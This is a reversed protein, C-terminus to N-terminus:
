YCAHTICGCWSDSCDPDAPWARCCVKRNEPGGCGTCNELGPEGYRVRCHEDVPECASEGPNGGPPDRQCSGGVLFYYNEVDCSACRVGAYGTDCVCQSDTCSGHGNCGADCSGCHEPDSCLDYCTDTCCTLGAECASCDPGCHGNTDCPECGDDVRYYGSECRYACHADICDVSAHDWSPCSQEAGAEDTSNDCNDDIGNCVEQAGPYVDADLDDCDAAAPYGDHDRDRKEDYDQCIGDVCIRTGPCDLDYTCRTEAGCAPLVFAAMTFAALNIACKRM